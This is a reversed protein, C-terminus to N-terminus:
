LPSRPYPVTTLQRCPKILMAIQSTHSKPQDSVKSWSWDLRVTAYQLVTMEFGMYIQTCLAYALTLLMLNRSTLIFDWIRLLEKKATAWSFAMADQKLKSGLESRQGSGPQEGDAKEQHFRRTEPILLTSFMSLILSILGMWMPLWPDIDMLWAAVPRVAASLVLMMAHLQYFLLTRDEPPVVDTLITWVMATIVPVGGGILTPIADLLLHWISFVDPQLM